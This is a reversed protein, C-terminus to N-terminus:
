CSKLCCNQFTMASGKACGFAEVFGPSHQLASNIDLRSEGPVAACRDYVWTLYVLRGLSIPTDKVISVTKWQATMMADMSSEVGLAIAAARLSDANHSGNLGNQKFCELRTKINRRSEDPWPRELLYSWMEAAMDVGMVPIGLAAKKNPKQGLLAYVNTPVYIVEERRVVVPLSLSNAAPIKRSVKAKRVDFAYSRAALLNAVFTKSVTPVRLDSAAIDEPLMLRLKDLERAIEQKSKGGLVPHGSAQDTVKLRITRFLSRVYNNMNRSSFVQAFFIDEIECVGLLQCSIGLGHAPKTSLIDDMKDRTMYATCIVIYALATSQHPAKMLLTLFDNIRDEERTEVETVNPYLSLILDRSIAAWEHESLGSFPSFPIIRSAAKSHNVGQITQLNDHLQRLEGVNVTDNLVKNFANAASGVDDTHASDLACGDNRQIKAITGSKSVSFSVLSRLGYRMSLEAFLRVVHFLEMKQGVAAAQAIATVFEAVDEGLLNAGGRTRKKIAALMQGAASNAARVSGYEVIKRKMAIRFMPSLHGPTGADVRSCVHAYFDDCPDASLNVVQLVAQAEDPCCFSRIDQLAPHAKSGGFAALVVLFFVFTSVAAGITAAVVPLFNQSTKLAVTPSSTAPTDLSPAPSVTAM